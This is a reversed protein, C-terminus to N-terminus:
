VLLISVLDVLDERPFQIVMKMLQLHRPNPKHIKMKIRAPDAEQDALAKRQSALSSSKMATLNKKLYLVALDAVKKKRRRKIKKRRKIKRPDEERDRKMRIKMMKM